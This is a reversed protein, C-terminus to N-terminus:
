LIRYNQLFSVARVSDSLVDKFHILKQNTKTWRSTGSQLNRRILLEHIEREREMREGKM